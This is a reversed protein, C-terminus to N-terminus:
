CVQQENSAPNVLITCAQQIVQSARAFQSQDVLGPRGAISSPDSVAVLYGAQATYEILGCVSDSVTKVSTGFQEHDSIKAHNGMGSMGDGIIM